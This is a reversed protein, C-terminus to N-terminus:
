SLVETIVLSPENILNITVPVPLEVNRDWCIEVVPRAPYRSNQNIVFGARGDNLKVKTGEPFLAVLRILKDLIYPDFHTGTNRLLYEFVKHAPLKDRYPRRNSLADFVDAIACIRAFDCIEDAKLQQPYGTGDYREHHQLAVYASSLSIEPNNYLLTFGYWPHRKIIDYEKDTLKSIKNIIERPVNIKGLDHLFVGLGLDFLRNLDYDLIMGIIVSVVTVNISHSFTYDDHTQINTLNLMVEKNKIVDNIIRSVVNKAPGLSLKRGYRVDEIIEKVCNISQIKTKESILEKVPNEDYPQEDIYLYTCGLRKLRRIFSLTLVMGEELLADGNENLVPQVLKFGPKTNNIHVRKM